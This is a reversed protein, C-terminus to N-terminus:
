TEAIVSGAEAVTWQLPNGPGVSIRKKKEKKKPPPPDEKRGKKREKKREKLWLFAAIPFNVLHPVLQCFGFRVVIMVLM